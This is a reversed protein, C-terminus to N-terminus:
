VQLTLIVYVKSCCVDSLLGAILPGATLPLAVSFFLLGIAPSIRQRGVVHAVLTSVTGVICGECTGFIVMYMVFNAYKLKVLPFLTTSLGM